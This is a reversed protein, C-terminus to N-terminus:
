TTVVNHQITLFQLLVADKKDGENVACDFRRYLRGALRGALSAVSAGTAAM